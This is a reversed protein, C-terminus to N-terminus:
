LDGGPAVDYDSTSVAAADGDIAVRLYPDLVQGCGKPFLNFHNDCSVSGPGEYRRPVLLSEPQKM